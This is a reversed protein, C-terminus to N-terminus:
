QGSYYTEIPVGAGLAGSVRAAIRDLEDNTLATAYPETTPRAVTYLDVRSLQAGAARLERLRAIYADIEADPPPAGRVRLFMSQIVVPHAKSVELINAIPRALPVSGRCVLRFYEDTGADLKAWIEGGNAMMRDVAARTKPKQLTLADTILVLKLGPAALRTRVEIAAEVAEPFLPSITPEGDGSFAIDNVRENAFAKGARIAEFLETLERRLQALSPEVGATGPNDVECYICDLDCVKKHPFLNVGVSIGRSRRSRVPYVM